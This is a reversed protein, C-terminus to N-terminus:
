QLQTPRISMFYEVDAETVKARREQFEGVFKQLVDICMQKVQGTLLAGKGYGEGIRALEEDDDLFFRLYQYPIDVELNAGKARHAEISEQGGSFAYKNIKTAIEKPSDTMFIATTQQAGINSSSMKTHHGLLSPFFISCLSAAKPFKLRPSIDRAIRFYPDQDIAYPILCPVPKAGKGGFLHPFACSLSPAIEAAPFAIRGICDEGTFGFINQAQNLNVCKQVKLVTEFMHAMYSTNAFIFTKERDFGAAIIEKANDRAFQQCQELTLHEKFLFKEDDTLQIVIHCKFVRQLYACFVFPIMHGLHMSESSPGRGTYLYFPKGQEVLDLIKDFDRHCYFMGRRLFPHAKEGILREFRAILESTLTSCGFQHMLKGYNIGTSVGNVIEGKVDWPTVCQEEDIKVNNLTAALTDTM